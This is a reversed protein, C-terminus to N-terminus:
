RADMAGWLSRGTRSLALPWRIMGRLGGRAQGPLGAVGALGTAGMPGVARVLWVPRMLRRSPGTWPPPWIMMTGAAASCAACHGPGGPRATGATTPTTRRPWIRDLVTGQIGPQIRQTKMRTRLTDVVVM